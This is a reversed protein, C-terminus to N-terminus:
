GEIYYNGNSSTIKIGSKSGTVVTPKNYIYAKSTTSSQNWDANTQSTLATKWAMNGNSDTGLFRSSTTSGNLQIKGKLNLAYTNSLTLKGTM